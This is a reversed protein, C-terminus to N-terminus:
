VRGRVWQSLLWKEGRTPSLGAHQTGFDPAGKTDVNWFFLADGKRGRFRWNLGPFETEGGEFDDNLYILFTLVRQGHEAVQKAYGPQTLDLFDYHRFFEEGVDYHLISTGEMAEVPPGTLAAIRARLLHLIVDTDALKFNAASNTRANGYTGLGSAPDAVEARVLRGRSREILWDCIQPPAFREAVAIRPAAFVPRGLVPRWFGLNLGGRLRKWIGPDSAEAAKAAAANGALLALEARALEFGFEASRQLHDFAAQWDQKLGIGSAAMAALLHAAAGSGEDAAEKTLALGERGNGLDFSSVLRRGLEAKAETDGAKAAIRLQAIKEDGTVREATIATNM